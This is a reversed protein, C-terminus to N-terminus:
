YSNLKVLFLGSRLQGPSEIIGHVYIKTSLYLAFTYHTGFAVM